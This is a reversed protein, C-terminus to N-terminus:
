SRSHNRPNRLNRNRLNAPDPEALEDPEPPELAGCAEPGTATLQVLSELTAILPLEKILVPPQLPHGSAPAMEACFMGPSPYTSNEPSPLPSRKIPRLEPLLPVSGLSIM